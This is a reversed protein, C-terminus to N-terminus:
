RAFVRVSLPAPPAVLPFPSNFILDLMKNKEQECKFLYSMFCAMSSCVITHIEIFILYFAKISYNLALM